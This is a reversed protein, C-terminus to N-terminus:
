IYIYVYIKPLHSLHISLYSLIHLPWNVPTSKMRIAHLGSPLILCVPIKHWNCVLSDAAIGGVENTLIVVLRCCQLGFWGITPTGRPSGSANASQTAVAWNVWEQKCPLWGGIWPNTIGDWPWNPGTDWTHVSSMGSRVAEQSKDASHHPGM